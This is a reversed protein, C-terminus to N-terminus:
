EPTRAVLPHSKENVVGCDTPPNPLGPRVHGQANAAAPAALLLGVVIAHETKMPPRRCLHGPRSSGGAHIRRVCGGIPPRSGKYKKSSRPSASSAELIQVPRYTSNRPAEPNNMKLWDPSRGSRYPSGKRKPVIGELGLKCAHRFINCAVAWYGKLLRWLQCKSIRKM